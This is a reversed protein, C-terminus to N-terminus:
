RAEPLDARVWDHLAAVNVEMESLVGREYPGAELNRQVSEVLAGDENHVQYNIRQNLWRVAKMEPRADPMGYARWRLLSRGPGLPVIHFFDVLDPYIEISAAPYLYFYSWRRRAPEPLHGTCRPLLSAYARTAWGGTPAERMCHSLRITRTAPDPERDYSKEMLATLGPHGTPFHYDELYNDWVNKWDAAIEGEWAEAIPVLDALRHPALEDVYGAYREAVSPGGPALRVFVFGLFVECEVPFLGLTDKDLKPFTRSAAIGKLVGRTDYCWAHYACRLVGDHHGALGRVVEHGRHRCVNHFARVVGDDGRVAFIRKGLVNMALYDGPAPLESVHGLVQWAPMHIREVERRTFDPDRYTWAPLTLPLAEDAPAAPVSVSLSGLAQPFLNELYRRCTTVAEAHDFAAGKVLAEQSLADILGCFGLAAARPDIPASAREALEAVLALVADYFAQDSAGCIALYDDRTRSEGWFAYWVALKGPDCITKDFSSEILAILGAAPERGAAALAAECASRYEDALHQLTARLLDQKSDFHFNVMSATLGALTAVKALTVNSIGHEAIAAIAADILQRRRADQPLRTRAPRDLM